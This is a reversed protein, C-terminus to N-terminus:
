AYGQTKSSKSSIYVGIKSLRTDSNTVMESTNQHSWPACGNPAGIHGDFHLETGRQDHMWPFRNDLLNTATINGELNGKLNMTKHNMWSSVGGEPLMVTNTSRPHVRRWGTDSILAPGQRL